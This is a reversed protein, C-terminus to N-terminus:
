HERRVRGGQGGLQEYLPCGLHDHEGGVAACDRRRGGGRHEVLLRVRRGRHYEARCEFLHGRRISQSLQPRLHQRQKFQFLSFPANDKSLIQNLEDHKM